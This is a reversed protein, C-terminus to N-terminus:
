SNIAMMRMLGVEAGSAVGNGLFLPKEGNPVTRRGTIDALAAQIAAGDSRQDLEVVHFQAGEM